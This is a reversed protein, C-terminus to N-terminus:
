GAQPPPREPAAVTKKSRPLSVVLVAAVAVVALIPGTM